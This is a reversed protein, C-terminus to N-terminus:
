EDSYLVCFKINSRKTTIIEENRLKLDFMYDPKGEPTTEKTDRIKTITGIAETIMEFKPQVGALSVTRLVPKNFEVKVLSGEGVSVRNLNNNNM